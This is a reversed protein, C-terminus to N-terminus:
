HPGVEWGYHGAFVFKHSHCSHVASPAYPRSKNGGREGRAGGLTRELAVDQVHGPLAQEYPKSKIGLTVVTDVM